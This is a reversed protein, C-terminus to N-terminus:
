RAIRKPTSVIGGNMRPPARNRVAPRMRVTTDRTRRAGAGFGVSHFAAVIEPTNMTTPPLPSTHQASSYTGEPSVARRTAVTGSHSTAIARSPGSRSTARGRSIRPSSRPRAPTTTRTVPEFASIPTPPADESWTRSPVMTM